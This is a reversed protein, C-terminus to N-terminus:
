HGIMQRIQNSHKATVCNPCLNGGFLAVTPTIPSGCATCARTGNYITQALDPQGAAMEMVFAGDGDDM